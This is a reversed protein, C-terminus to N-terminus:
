VAVTVPDPPKPPTTVNLTVPRPAPMVAVKVGALTVPEPLEVRVTLGLEDVGLPM